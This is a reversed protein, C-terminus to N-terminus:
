RSRRDTFVELARDGIMFQIRNRQQVLARVEVVIADYRDRTVSGIKESM